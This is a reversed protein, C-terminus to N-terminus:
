RSWGDLAHERTGHYVDQGALPDDASLATGDACHQPM